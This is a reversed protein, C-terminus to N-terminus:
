PMNSTLNTIEKMLYDMNVLLSVKEFPYAWGKKQPSATNQFFPLKKTNQLPTHWSCMTSM